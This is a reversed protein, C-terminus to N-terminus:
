SFVDAASHIRKKRHMKNADEKKNPFRSRLFAFIQLLKQKFEASPSHRIEVSAITGINENPVFKTEPLNELFSNTKGSLM